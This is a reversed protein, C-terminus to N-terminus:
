VVIFEDELDYKKLINQYIIKHKESTDYGIENIMDVIEDGDRVIQSFNTLFIKYYSTLGFKDDGHIIEYELANSVFHSALLLRNYKNDSSHWNKLGEITQKMDKSLHSAWDFGYDALFSNVQVDTFISSVSGALKRKNSYSITGVKLPEEPFGKPRIGSFGDIDFIIHTLEHAVSFQDHLSAPIRQLLIVNYSIRKEADLHSLLQARDGSQKKSIESWYLTHAIKPREIEYFKSFHPSFLLKGIVFNEPYFKLNPLPGVVYKEFCCDKYKKGSNCPCYDNRGINVLVM